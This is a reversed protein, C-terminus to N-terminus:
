RTSNVLHQPMMKRDVFPKENGLDNCSCGGYKTTSLFFAALDAIENVYDYDRQHLTQDGGSIYQHQLTIVSRIKEIDAVLLRPHM